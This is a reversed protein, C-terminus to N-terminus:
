FVHPLMRKTRAAYGAYDPYRALLLREETLMRLLAGLFVLLALGAAPFSLHACAGAVTFLVVATYIPHRLHRYPGSTVLGGETPNAAAHFSRGGFTMRAWLMLVVAAAQLGVVLPSASFLSRTVALGVVGAVMLVFGLVSASRM